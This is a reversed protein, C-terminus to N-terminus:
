PYQHLLPPVDTFISARMSYQFANTSKIRYALNSVYTVDELQYEPTYWTVNIVKEYEEMSNIAMPMYDDTAVIKGLSDTTYM